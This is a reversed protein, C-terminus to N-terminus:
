STRSQKEANPDGAPGESMTEEADTWHEKVDERPKTDDKAVDPRADKDHDSM